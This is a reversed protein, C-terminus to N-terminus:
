KSCSCSKSAEAHEDVVINESFAVKYEKLLNQGLSLLVVVTLLKLQGANKIKVHYKNKPNIPRSQLM